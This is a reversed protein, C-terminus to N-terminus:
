CNEGLVSRCLSLDSPKDVDFGIEPFATIVAKANLSYLSGAKREAEPISLRKFVMKLLFPVGLVAAMKLPKKRNEVLFELTKRLKDAIKMDVLFMNGGTFQGEKMGAYTRRVGPYRAEMVEQRVVPYYFDLDIAGCERIFGDVVEPTILPIDSTAVLTKGDGGLAAFGRMVNDVMSGGPPVFRAKGSTVGGDVGPPAVVAIRDVLGSRDLADLVYQLMPKGAVEILAEWEAPDADHLKGDNARGALVVADVSM